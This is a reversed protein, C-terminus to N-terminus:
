QEDMNGIRLVNHSKELLGEFIQQKQGWTQCYVIQYGKGKLPIQNDAGFNSGCFESSVPFQEYITEPFRPSCGSSKVWEMNYVAGVLLVRIKPRFM